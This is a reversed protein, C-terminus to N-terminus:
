KIESINSKVSSRIKKSLTSRPLFFLIWHRSISLAAMILVLLLIIWIYYDTVLDLLGDGGTGEYDVSINYLETKQHPHRSVSITIPISAYSEELENVGFVFTVKAIDIKGIRPYTLMKGKAAAVGKIEFLIWFMNGSNVNEIFVQETGNAKAISNSEQVDISYQAKLVGNNDFHFGLIDLYKTSENSTKFNQGTVFFDGNEAIHYNAIQFKKGKGWNYEM